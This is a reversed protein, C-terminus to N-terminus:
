LRFIKVGTNGCKRCGYFAFLPPLSPLDRAKTLAASRCQPCRIGVFRRALWWLLGIALIPLLCAAISILLEDGEIQM